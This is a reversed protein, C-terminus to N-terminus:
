KEEKELDKNSLLDDLIDDVEEAEKIFKKLGIRYDDPFAREFVVAGDVDRIWDQKSADLEERYVSELVKHKDVKDNM